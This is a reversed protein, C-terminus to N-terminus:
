PLGEQSPLSMSIQRGVFSMSNEWVTTKGDDLEERGGIIETVPAM